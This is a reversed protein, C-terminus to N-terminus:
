CRNLWLPETVKSPRRYTHLGVHLNRLCDLQSLADSEAEFGVRDVQEILRCEGIHGALEVAASGNRNALQGYGLEKGTVFHAIEHVRRVHKRGSARHPGLVVGNVAKRRRELPQALDTEAYAQNELALLRQAVPAM